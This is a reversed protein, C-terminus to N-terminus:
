VGKLRDLAKLTAALDTDLQRRKAEVHDHVKNTLATLATMPSPAEVEIVDEGIKVTAFWDDRWPHTGLLVTAETANAIQNALISLQSM